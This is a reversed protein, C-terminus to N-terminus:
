QRLVPRGFNIFTYYEGIGYEAGTGSSNTRVLEANASVVLIEGATFDQTVLGAGSSVFVVNNGSGM